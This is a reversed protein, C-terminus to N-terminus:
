TTKVRPDFLPYCLDVFLNVVVYTVAVFLLCGQLVPYDRGYISEVILRGLGPITFVTEVVAVGGLLNGLILGLLTWTPGFANRFVHHRLVQGETLGKARAHTVYDLRLVDLTSARSMRVLIGCEHLVLAAVPMVLYLVGAGFNEFPSVYGLVPLWGLNLGFLLLLMLGMWFTPISMLATAGIVVGLDFASNQRWAALMGLPVALVTALGVSVLVLQATIAFRQLVLPLVAEGTTISHGLDGHLVGQLWLLFQMSIPRDLGLQHSMAAYAAEDLNDGLMLSVPDGPILRILTFVALSVLFLTPIASILRSLVFRTM